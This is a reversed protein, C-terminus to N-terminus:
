KCKVKYRYYRVIPDVEKVWEGDKTDTMIRLEECRDLSRVLESESKAIAIKKFAIEQVANPLDEFRCDVGKETPNFQELIKRDKDTRGFPNIM